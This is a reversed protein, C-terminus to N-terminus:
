RVFIRNISTIFRKSDVVLLGQQPREYEGKVKVAFPSYGLISGNCYFLGPAMTQHWHALIDFDAHRGVNWSKIAKNMPITLGGIGGMYRTWDGHHNRIEKGYLNLFNHYGDAIQFKVKKHDKYIYDAMFRYMLWEYTHQVMTGARLERSDRSHNGVSCLVRIEDFGGKQILLDIGSGLLKLAFLTEEQVPGANEEKMDEYLMNSVFDGLLDLVLTKINLKTRHIETWALVGNFFEAASKEAINPNYTNLGNVREPKVQEFVHWDSAVAIVAGEGTGTKSKAEIIGGPTYQEALSDLWGSQSKFSNYEELLGAYNRKHRDTDMRLEALASDVEHQKTADVEAQFKDIPKEDM